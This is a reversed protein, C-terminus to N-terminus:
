HFFLSLKKTKEKEPNYYTYISFTRYLNKLHNGNEIKNEIHDLISKKIESDKKEIQRFLDDKEKMYTELKDIIVPDEDIITIDDNFNM